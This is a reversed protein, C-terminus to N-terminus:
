RDIPKKSAVRGLRAVIGARLDMAWSIAILAPPKMAITTLLM